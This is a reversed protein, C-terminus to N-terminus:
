LWKDAILIYKYYDKYSTKEIEEKILWHYEKRRVCAIIFTYVGAVVVFLLIFIVLCLFFM